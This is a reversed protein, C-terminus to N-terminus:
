QNHNLINENSDTAKFQAINNSQTSGGNEDVWTAYSAVWSERQHEISIRWPFGTWVFMM